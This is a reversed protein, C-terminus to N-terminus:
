RPLAVLCPMKIVELEAYNTNACTVQPEPFIMQAYSSETLSIPSFYNSIKKMAESILSSRYRVFLYIYM